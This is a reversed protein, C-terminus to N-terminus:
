TEGLQLELVYKLVKKRDTENLDKIYSCITELDSPKQDPQITPETPQDKLLWNLDITENQLKELLKDIPIKKRNSWTKVTNYNIGLKEAVQRDSKVNFHIKLKDMINRYDNM